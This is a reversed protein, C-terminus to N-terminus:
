GTPSMSSSTSAALAEQHSYMHALYGLAPAPLYSAHSHHLLRAAELRTRMITRVFHSRVKVPNFELRGTKNLCGEATCSCPFGPRDM